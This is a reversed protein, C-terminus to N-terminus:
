VGTRGRGFAERVPRAVNRAEERANEVRRETERQARQRSSKAVAYAVGAVILYLLAVLFTGAPDGVLENLGVVLAITLVILTITAFVAMGLMLAISTVLGRKWASLAAKLETGVRGPAVRARRGTEAVAEAKVKVDEQIRHAAYRASEVGERVNDAAHHAGEKVRDKAHVVREKAHHATDRVAGTANGTATRVADTAHRTADATAIGATKAYGGLQQVEPQAALNRGEETVARALNGAEGIGRKAENALDYDDLAEVFGEIAGSIAAAM